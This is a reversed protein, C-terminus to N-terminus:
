LKRYIKEPIPFTRKNLIAGLVRVHAKGLDDIAHRARERRTNSEATVLAVGDSVHALAIADAHVSLPGADILIHKFVSKLYNVRSRLADSSVLGQGGQATLADSGLLWLNPTGVVPHVHRQLDESAGGDVSPEEHQTEVALYQRLGPSRFNADVVCVSGNVQAALLGACHAAIWSCGNGPEVGAMVVAQLGNSLLFLHRVIRNLQECTHPDLDPLSPRVTEVRREPLNWAVAEPRASAEPKATGVAIEASAQQLLEFIRSM